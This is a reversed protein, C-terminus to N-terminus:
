QWTIESMLEAMAACTNIDQDVVFASKHQYDALIIVAVPLASPSLCTTFKEYIKSFLTASDIDSNETVWKRVKTFDKDKMASLLSELRSEAFNLLIGADITGAGQAYKQLEGLLLRMDPFWRRVAAVLAEKEFPVSNDKLISAVRKALETILVKQEEKPFNFDIVPCRSQLPEILRSKYNCTLIFGTVSSFEEIFARLGQQFAVTTNDAEDLLVYKRGGNISVSSAFQMIENRLTDINGHLSANVLYVDADLENIMAKAVTTKGVGPGGAFIVNPIKGNDVYSQFEKKLKDPLICEKVTSPRYRENWLFHDAKSM